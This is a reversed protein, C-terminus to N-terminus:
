NDWLSGFRGLMCVGPEGMGTGADKTNPFLQLGPGCVKPVRSYKPLM